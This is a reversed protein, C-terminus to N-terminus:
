VYKEVCTIMEGVTKISSADKDLISINFAKELRIILHVMDITDAGLDEIFRTEPTCLNEEISLAQAITKKTKEELQKREM